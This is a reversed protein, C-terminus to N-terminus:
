GPLLAPRSQSRQLVSPKKDDNRDRRCDRALIDHADLVCRQPPRGRARSRACEDRFVAVHANIRGRAFRPKRADKLEVRPVKQGLSWGQSTIDITVAGHRDRFIELDADIRPRQSAAYKRPGTSVRTSNECSRLLFCHTMEYSGGGAMNVIRDVADAPVMLGRSPHLTM